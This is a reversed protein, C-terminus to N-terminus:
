KHRKPLIAEEMGMSGGHARELQSRTGRSGHDFLHTLDEQEHGPSARPFVPAQLFASTVETVSARTLSAPRFSGERSQEPILMHLRGWSLTVWRQSARPVVHGLACLHLLARKSGAAQSRAADRGQRNSIM